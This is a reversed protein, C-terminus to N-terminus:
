LLPVTNREETEVKFPPPPLVEDCQFTIQEGEQLYFVLANAGFSAPTLRDGHWDRRPGLYQLVAETVDNGTEDLVIDVPQPGRSARAVYRYTRGEITYSIEYKKRDIRRVSSNLYQILSLYLTDLMIKMSKLAIKVGNKERTEVLKNVKKWQSYGHSCSNGVIRFADLKCLLIFILSVAPPLVYTLM